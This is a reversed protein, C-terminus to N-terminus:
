EGGARVSLAERPIARGGLVVIDISDYASVSELPNGQMLLLNARKGIQVAGIEGDLGFAAANDATAARFLKEPSVGAAMWRDMEMRGNLGPPNAYTLDSPTDSGFLLRGGHADLWALAATAAAIPAADIEEWRGEEVMRRLYPIEMMRNRFQQGEPSGYWDILSQPLADALRPDSLYDPDHLDREGYLVQITPQWGINQAVVGQLIAEVTPTIGTAERDNRNWLGHVFIDVGAEVGFAQSDESNAHLLVPMGRAHAAAVLDRVLDVSPVPLNSAAGFGDEHYTKVCIAGDARMREVVAEPSHEAPDYGEPFDEPRDPDFLFDPMIQYRMDEPFFNTPYGGSIPAPGCYYLDPHAPTENWVAAWAQTSALDIVTTFGYFLYSRPIQARAARAIEPQAAEQEISMGPVLALHVHSDILGPTLFRGAGDIVSEADRARKSPRRAIEAIRGDKIYVSMPASAGDREPSIISVNTILLDDAQARAAQVMALGSLLAGRAIGSFLRM